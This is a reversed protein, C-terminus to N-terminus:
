QKERTKQQKYFKVMKAAANAARTINPYVPISKEVLRNKFETFIGTIRGTPDKEGSSRDYLIAFLPKSKMDDFPFQTILSDVTLPGRSGRPVIFVINLDIAAHAAMMKSLAEAGVGGPLISFDAPNSIWDWVPNGQKKLEERIEAPLPIVDLGAEECLDAALVSGGGGGGAVGVHNGYAPPLFYFAAAVDIMEEIDSVTVAGAQKMATKWVETSGALSATHSATARTGSKGRGGKLIIVPKKATTKRLIDLFRKGDRVGEIYLVVLKTEDDEAFYELYDCENFDVANGYSIGKSYHMGRTGATEILEYALAGSQSILGMPGPTNSMGPDWSIGWGPHYVGMCNPGIIRIGAAKARKLMEKELEIADQRGTEAFRATFFHICKVGKMACDDLLNLVQTAPISSIVFDVNGPIDRVSPYCKIGRVEQYKPHVPYIKGKFGLKLLALIFRGGDGTESAGAVAISQPHLIEELPNPSM